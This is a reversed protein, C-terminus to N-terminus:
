RLHCGACCGQRTCCYPTCIDPVSPALSAPGHRARVGVEDLTDDGYDGCNDNRIGQTSTSNTALSEASTFVGEGATRGRRLMWTSYHALM